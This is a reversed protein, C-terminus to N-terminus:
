NRLYDVNREGQTLAAPQRQPEREEGLMKRWWSEGLWAQMAWGTLEITLSWLIFLVALQTIVDRM